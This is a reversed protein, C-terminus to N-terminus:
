WDRLFSACDGFRVLFLGHGRGSRAEKEDAIIEDEKTAREDDHGHLRYVANWWSSEACYNQRRGEWDLCDRPFGVWREFLRTLSSGICVGAGRKGAEVLLRM